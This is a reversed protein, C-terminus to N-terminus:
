LCQLGRQLGAPAASGRSCGGRWGHSSDYLHEALENCELFSNFGQIVALKPQKGPNQRKKSKRATAAAAPRASKQTHEPRHGQAGTALVARRPRLPRQPSNKLAYTKGKTAKERQQRPRLGRLNIPTNQLPVKASQRMRLEGSAFCGSRRIEGRAGTEQLAKRQIQKDGL